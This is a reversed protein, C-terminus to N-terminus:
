ELELGQLCHEVSSLTDSIRVKVGCKTTTSSYRSRSSSYYRDGGYLPLVECLSPLSMQGFGRQLDRFSFGIFPARPLPQLGQSVLEKFLGGLVMADCHKVQKCREEPQGYTEQITRIMDCCESLASQRAEEISDSSKDTM